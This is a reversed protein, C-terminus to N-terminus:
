TDFLPRFRRLWTAIFNQNPNARPAHAKMVEEHAIASVTIAYLKWEHRTVFHRAIRNSDTFLDCADFGAILDGAGIALGAALAVHAPRTLLPKAKILTKKAV